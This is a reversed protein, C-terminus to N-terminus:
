PKRTWIVDLFRMADPTGTRNRFEVYQKEFHGSDIRFVDREFHTLGSEFGSWKWILKGEVLKLEAEGYAADTYTGTFRDLPASPRTGPTRRRNDADLKAAKVSREDAELKLFYNNWDRPNTPKWLEDLLTYALAINMKSQHINSFIAIGLKESPVFLIMTRFGDMVGGHAIVERGQYDFNVWGLGYMVKKSDPYVPGITEDKPMETIGVWTERIPKEANVLFKLWRAADDATTYVSGAANPERLVYEPMLSIDGSALRQYGKARNKIKAASQSDTLTSAMGLPKLLKAQLLEEWKAGGANEAIQGAVMYMLTSYDYHARNPHTPKLFAMRRFVEARDWPAHYWLYDHSPVGTRHSLADRITLSQAHAKDALQFTPFHKQIPDDWRLKGDEVLKALLTSTLAKTCSGLPYLTQLDVDPGHSKNLISEQDRVMVVTCNPMKWATMATTIADPPTTLLSALLVWTM